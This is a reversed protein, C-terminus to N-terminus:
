DGTNNPPLQDGWGLKKEMLVTDLWRGFKWGTAVLTGVHSFGLSLHLGISSSNATDGIVAIMKRMGAQEARALLESLLARGLGLGQVGDALYISNEAAFRYAPRPRFWNCYAYGIVKGSDELVLWPLGRGLVEARRALMDQLSPPEIEFSGSGHRVHHAYIATVAVMDDESSPRIMPM